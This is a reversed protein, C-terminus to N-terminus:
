NLTRKTRNQAKSHCKLFDITCLTCPFKGNIKQVHDTLIEKSLIQRLGRLLGKLISQPSWAYYINCITSPFDYCPNAACFCLCLRLSQWELHISFEVSLLTQAFNFASLITYGLCFEMCFSQLQHCKPFYNPLRPRNSKTLFLPTWTFFFECKSYCRHMQSGNHFPVPSRELKKGTSKQTNRVAEQVNLQFTGQYNSYQQLVNSKWPDGYWVLSGSCLCM